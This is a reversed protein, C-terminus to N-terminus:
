ILCTYLTFDFYIVAFLLASVEQHRERELRRESSLRPKKTQPGYSFRSPIADDTFDVKPKGGMLQSRLDTVLCSPEFHDSCVYSYELPPMNKRRIRDLWANTRHDRPISHYTVADGEKKTKKSHNMCGPVCCSVM